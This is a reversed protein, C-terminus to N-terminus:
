RGANKIDEIDEETIEVEIDEWNKINEDPLLDKIKKIIEKTQNTQNKIQSKLIPLPLYKKTFIDFGTIFKKQEEAWKYFINIHGKLSEKVIDKSSKNIIFEIEKKVKNKDKKNLINNLVNKKIEETVKLFDYTLIKLRIETEINNMNSLCLAIHPSLILYSKSYLVLSNYYKKDKPEKIERTIQAKEEDTLAVLNENIDYGVNQIALDNFFLIIKDKVTGSQLTKDITKRDM